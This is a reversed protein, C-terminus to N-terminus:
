PRFATDLQVPQRVAEEFREQLSQSQAGAGCEFIPSDDIRGSPHIHRGWGAWQCTSNRCPALGFGFRSTRLEATSREIRLTQIEGGCSTQWKIAAAVAQEASAGMEMAGIAIPAGSGIAYFPAEIRALHFREGVDFAEGQANVVIAQFRVDGVPPPPRKDHDAGALFWNRFDDLAGGDGSYGAINGNADRFIKNLSGLRRDGYTTCLSDSAMLGSRYCVVTV